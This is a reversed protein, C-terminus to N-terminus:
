TDVGDPRAAVPRPAVPRPAQVAAAAPGTQLQKRKDQVMADNLAIDGDGITTPAAPLERGLDELHEHLERLTPVLEENFHLKLQGVSITMKEFARREIDLFSYTRTLRHGVAAPLGRYFPGLVERYAGQLPFPVQVDLSGELVMRLPEEVSLLEQYVAEVAAAHEDARAQRQDQILDRAADASDKARGALRHTYAVYVITALVLVGALIAQVSGAHVDLWFDNALIPSAPLCSSTAVM